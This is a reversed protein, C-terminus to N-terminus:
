PLFETTISFCGFLNKFLPPGGLGPPKLGLVVDVNLLPVETFDDKVDLDGGIVFSKSRLFNASCLAVM